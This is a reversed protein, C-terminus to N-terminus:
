SPSTESLGIPLAVGITEPMNSVGGPLEYVASECDSRQASGAGIVESISSSVVAWLSEGSRFRM